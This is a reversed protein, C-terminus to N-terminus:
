IGIMIPVTFLYNTTTSVQIYTLCFYDSLNKNELLDVNLLTNTKFLKKSM